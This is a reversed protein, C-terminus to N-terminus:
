VVFFEIYLTFPYISVSLTSHKNLVHVTLTSKCKYVCECQSCHCLKEEPLNGAVNGDDVDGSITPVLGEEPVRPDASVSDNCTTAIEESARGGKHGGDKKPSERITKSTHVSRPPSSVPSRSRCVRKAVPLSTESGKIHAPNNRRRHSAKHSSAKHVHATPSMEKGIGVANSEQTCQQTGEQESYLKLQDSTKNGVDKDCSKVSSETSTKRSDHSVKKHSKRVSSPSGDLQQVIAVKQRMREFTKILKGGEDFESGSGQCSVPPQPGDLQTIYQYGGVDGGGQVHPQMIVSIKKTNDRLEGPKGSSASPNVLQYVQGGKTMYMPSQDQTPQSPAGQLYIVSGQPVTSFTQVQVPSTTGQAAAPVIQLPTIVNSHSGTSTPSQLILSQIHATTGAGSSSTHNPSTLYVGQNGSVATQQQQPSPFEYQTMRITKSSARSTQVMGTGRGRGGRGQCVQIVQPIKRPQNANLPSASQDKRPRGPRRKVPAPPPTPVDHQPVSIIGGPTLAEGGVGVMGSYASVMQPNFGKTKVVGAVKGQQSTAAPEGQRMVLPPPDRRALGSGSEPMILAPPPQIHTSNSIGRGRRTGRGMGRILGRSIRSMFGPPIQDKGAKILLPPGQPSVLTPTAFSPPPNPTALSNISATNFQTGKPHPSSSAVQPTVGVKVQVGRGRRGRGRTSGGESNKGGRRKKQYPVTYDEDSDSSSSCSYFSDLAGEEDDQDLSGGERGEGRGRVGDMGGEEETLYDYQEDEDDSDSDNSYMPHWQLAEEGLTIVASPIHDVDTPVRDTVM